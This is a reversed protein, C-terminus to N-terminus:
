ALEAQGGRWPYAFHMSAIAIVVALFSTALEAYSHARNGPSSDYQGLQNFTSVTLLAVLWGDPQSPSYALKIPNLGGQSL